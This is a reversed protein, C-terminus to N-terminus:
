EHGLIVGHQKNQTVMFQCYGTVNKEGLVERKKNVELVLKEQIVHPEIFCAVWHGIQLNGVVLNSTLVGKDVM